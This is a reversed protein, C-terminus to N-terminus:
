PIAPSTPADPRGVLATHGKAAGFLQPALRVLRDRFVDAITKVYTVTLHNTDRWVVVNGVVSPCETETCIADTLDILGVKKDLASAMMIPDDNHVVDARKAVCPDSTALCEAAEFPMKPTDRIAVVPIGMSEIEGWVDAIARAMDEDTADDNKSYLREGASQAFIVLDPPSAKMWDLVSRGWELCASYYKIKRRTIPVTLLPCGSKTHTVLHWDEREALIRLLPMWQAAHSDGVLVVTTPADPRGYDCPNLEAQDQPVHCDTSYAEPVDKKVRVLPPMPEAVKPVPAGFLAAAGPYDASTIETTPSSETVLFTAAPLLACAAVAAAGYAIVRSAGARGRRFPDEVFLKSLHAFALTAAVIVLGNLPSVPGPYYVLFFVIIPWHILYVSYSIDGLYQVARNGLIQYVSQPPAQSGAAIVVAAGVTPLLAAYGPFATEGSFGFCAVLIAGLGACRLLEAVSAPIPPVVVLALLAGLGLEWIRTYTAFYAYPQDNATVIVSAAFSAAVVAALPWLFARRKVQEPRGKAIFFSVAIMILPWLIYYQEEISLSWYHQVPSAVNDAGLYDTALQALLWNEVYLAAAIIGTATEEWRM